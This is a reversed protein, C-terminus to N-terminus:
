LQIDVLTWGEANPLSLFTGVKKVGANTVSGSTQIGGDNGLFAPAGVTISVIPVAGGNIGSYSVLGERLIVASQGSLLCQMRAQKNTDYRLPIGNEDTERYDYLLVGIANQGSNTTIKVKAQLGVRQAVTNTYHAGVDGLDVLESEGPIYGSSVYVFNGKTTPMPGDLTYFGNLVDHESYDRLPKLNPM